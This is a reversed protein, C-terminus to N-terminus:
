SKAGHRTQWAELDAEYRAVAEWYLDYVCPACGSGCCEIADPERPPVPASDPLANATMEDSMDVSEM